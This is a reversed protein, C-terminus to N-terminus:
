ECVGKSKPANATGITIHPTNNPNSTKLNAMYRYLENPSSGQELFYPFDRQSLPINLGIAQLPKVAYDTCNYGTLRYGLQAQNQYSYLLTRFDADTVTFTMSAEYEHNENNRIVSPVVENVSSKIGSNPYFGFVQNITESGTTKSLMIFAHGPRYNDDFMKDPANNVPLNTYLTVKYQSAPTIDGFCKLFKALNIIPDPSAFNIVVDKMEIKRIVAYREGGDICDRTSCGGRGSSGGTSGGGGSGGGSGGVGSGGSVCVYSTELPYDYNTYCTGGACAVTYFVKVVTYCNQGNTRASTNGEQAEMNGIVKGDEYMLHKVTNGREDTIKLTGSFDSPNFKERNKKVYSEEGVVEKLYLSMNQNQDKFFLVKKIIGIPLNTNEVPVEVMIQNDIQTTVADQWLLPATSFASVSAPQTASFWKRAEETTIATGEKPGLPEQRNCSAFLVTLLLCCFAAISFLKKM